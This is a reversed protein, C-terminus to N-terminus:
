VGALESMSTALEIERVSETGNVEIEVDFYRGKAPLRYARSQTVQRKFLARGDAYHTVQVGSSM